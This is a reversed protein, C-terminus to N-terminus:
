PLMAARSIPRPFPPLPIKACGSGFDCIKREQSGVRCAQHGNALLPPRLFARFPMPFFAADFRRRLDRFGLFYRLSAVVATEAGDRTAHRSRPRRIFYLFRYRARTM